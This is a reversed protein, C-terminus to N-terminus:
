LHKNVAGQMGAQWRPLYPSRSPTHLQAPRFASASLTQSCPHAAISQAVAKCRVAWWGYQLATARTDALSLSVNLSATAMHKQGTLSDRRNQHIKSHKIATIKNAWSSFLAPCLTERKTKLIDEHNQIDAARMHTHQLSTSVVSLHHLHLPGDSHLAFPRFFSWLQQVCVLYSLFNYMKLTIINYIHVLCNKRTIEQIKHIAAKCYHM